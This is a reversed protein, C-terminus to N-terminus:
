NKQAARWEAILDDYKVTEGQPKENALKAKPAGPQDFWYQADREENLKPACEGGIGARELRQLVRDMSTALNDMAEQPTREGTVAEAVNQWWLQALKPYDPVNTGTPSWQVRAPSRYFEVLGGWNPAIDTMEQTDLDSQRIPTLGTLTKKLSVSKSTVFQAYLWAAKRRELPTSKMLTWSGVDQYGLKMGEEWYPGHPSPAMRWKPTGDDNVVPTGKKAMDATFATYWFIQQAIQGQAPVPGAEGFTMGAAEAPAYAKLWDIYKTLAYVAAPGNAAGGRTVSSGAPACGEVRIGWEDVPLGNPLGKDGAGAMSLWADTFRWGLSPDKKGYDMHGYVKQGDIEGVDNTFFEAIDEYASWNVPVGLDYGYKDKFQKQLDERQFWDYRFWYLNAFQQDPLQYLKGDPGTTFSLGIFDELDLTPSTVDKGEGSMFDSLPVVADYRSHTGILDSDNIYADYINRNSQMQTQLKEIVDGEGILDHTLNIGTIESFAKALVKSEYEHTTITESVVNIDMGRFPEAAKIFWELEAMQADKSLSSPQFESDIWKKAADTYQDAMAPNALVALGLAVAVASGKVVSSAGKAKVIM